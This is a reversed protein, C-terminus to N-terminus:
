DSGLHASIQARWHIKLVKGEGSHQTSQEHIDTTWFWAGDGGLRSLQEIAAEELEQVTDGVVEFSATVRAM